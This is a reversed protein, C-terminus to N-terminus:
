AVVLSDSHPCFDPCMSSSQSCVYLTIDREKQSVYARVHVRVGVQHTIAAAGCGRYVQRRRDTLPTQQELSTVCEGDSAQQCKGAGIHAVYQNRCCQARLAMNWGVHVWFVLPPAKASLLVFSFVPFAKERDAMRQSPFPLWDPSFTHTLGDSHSGVLGSVVSSIIRSGTYSSM